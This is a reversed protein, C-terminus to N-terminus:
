INIHVILPRLSHGHGGASHVSAPPYSQPRQIIPQREETFESHVLARMIEANLINVEGAFYPVNKRSYSLILTRIVQLIRVKKM